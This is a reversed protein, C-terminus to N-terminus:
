APDLRFTLSDRGPAQSADVLRQAPADDLAADELVSVRASARYGDVVAAPTDGAARIAAPRFRVFTVPRCRQILQRAGRLVLHETGDTVVNLV